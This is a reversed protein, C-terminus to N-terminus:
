WKWGEMFIKDTPKAYKQVYKWETYKLRNHGYGDDRVLLFSIFSSPFPFLFCVFLSIFFYLLLLHNWSIALSRVVIVMKRKGRSKHQGYEFVASFNPFSAIQHCCFIDGRFKLWTHGIQFSRNSIENWDYFCPQGGPSPEYLPINYISFSMFYSQVNGNKFLLLPALLSWDHGQVSFYCLPCQHLLVDENAWFCM